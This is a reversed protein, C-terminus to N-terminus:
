KFRVNVGVTFFPKMAQTRVGQALNYYEPDIDDKNKKWLMVNNLQGYIRCNDMFLRGAIGEPLTYSLTLDRLKMYAANVVNIDAQRYFTTSRRNIDEANVAVYSPTNTFAEDGPKQWRDEFSAPINGKLRGSYFTNVDRRMQYGLNYVVLFSLDFRRYHFTNTIGGYWQPQIIGAFSLDDATVNGSTKVKKGDHTIIQPDGMGDLGAWDYAYISYAPYGELFGENAKNGPTLVTSRKLSLVKNKNYGLTFLTNWAFSGKAINRSNLQVDIGKNLMNGLNAYGYYWGNTRDLPQFGLLDTTKKHYVDISATLRGSWLDIVVGANLMKTREWSLAKNGPLLPKYGIGVDSFLPNKEALIIDMTSGSGPRPSNGGLGYTLRINLRSIGKVDFFAENSLLWGAGVSWIPKYQQSKETGFLNSQDMRISGNLNYRQQYTYAANAYLSFFRTELEEARYPTSALTSKTSSSTGLVPKNIGTVELLKEDYTYYTLTQFDFGRRESTEGRTKDGRVETGALLTVQHHQQFTNDYSFQNRATWATNQRNVSRYFGGTEPLYYTPKGGPAAAAQTFHVLEYRNRYSPQDYFLYQHSNVQQYQFRGEYTLGKMLRISFGTNVRASTVKAANNRTYEKELLPIYDLNIGSKQEAARRYPAYIQLDALSLPNGQDDALMVYPLFSPLSNASLFPIVQAKSKEQSLNITLDAKVAKSLFFDQRLNMLYRNMNATDGGQKGTYALSGYYTHYQSGGSFSLSHNTLFGPQRLYKNFQNRNDLGALSDLRADAAAQSIIGNQLDYLIQEHPYVIPDTNGIGPATVTKWPYAAPNFIERAAKVLQASNMRHQYDDDPLGKFSAFGDYSVSIKRNTNKGKKTTVVVVGNAANAGWISAATADKLFTINEVDNPNVFSAVYDYAMPVGDVVFLPQRSANVSSVGRILFKDAKDGNNMALGPALGELRDLVNMSGSKQQLQSGDVRSFSGASRERSITQYGTVVVQQLVSINPSLIIELYPQDGAPVKKTIFGMSSIILIPNANKVALTFEGNGDTNCGAQMNELMISVGPVPNRSEDLVKGKLIRDKQQPPQQRSIIILNNDGNRFELETNSLIQKLVDTVTIDEAEITVRKEAPIITSSYVFRYPSQQEIASFVRIIPVTKLHLSLKTQQMGNGALINHTCILMFLSLWLTLGAIRRGPLVTLAGRLCIRKM